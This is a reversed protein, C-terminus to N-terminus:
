AELFAQVKESVWAMDEPNAQGGAAHGWVSPIPQLVAQGQAFLELETESDQPPFYLDTVCPMILTKAKISRIAAQLDGGFQPLSSIDGNQWTDLMVLLNDPDLLKM